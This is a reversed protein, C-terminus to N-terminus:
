RGPKVIDELTPAKRALSLVDYRTRGLRRFGMGQFHRRLKRRAEKEEVEGGHRPIWGTPVKAFEAADPNLPYTWSVALGCGGGLLDITKRAAMLGLKLGRWRPSLLVYDLVLIDSAFVDLSERIDERLDDTEVDYLAAYLDHMQQSHCDCVDFLPEGAERALDAHIRYAKVLGVNFARDDRNRTRRIVGAHESIFRDPEGDPHLSASTRLVIDFSSV